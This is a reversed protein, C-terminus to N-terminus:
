FNPQEIQNKNEVKVSRRARRIIRSIVRKDHLRNWGRIAENPKKCCPGTQCPPTGSCQVFYYLVTDNHQRYYPTAQEGSGAKGCSCNKIKM